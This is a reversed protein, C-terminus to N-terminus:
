QDAMGQYPYPSDVRQVLNQDVYKLLNQGTETIKVTFSYPEKTQILMLKLAPNLLIATKKLMQKLAPNLLITKKKLVQKLAPNLHIATKKLM